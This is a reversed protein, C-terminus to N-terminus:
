KAVVRRTSLKSKGKLRRAMTWLGGLRTVHGLRWGEPNRTALLTNYIPKTLYCHHSNSFLCRFAPCSPFRWPLLKGPTRRANWACPSPVEKKFKMREM